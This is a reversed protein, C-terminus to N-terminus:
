YSNSLLSKLESLTKEDASTDAEIFKKDEIIGKLLEIGVKIRQRNQEQSYGTARDIMLDIPSKGIDSAKLEKLLEKIGYYRFDIRAYAEFVEPSDM